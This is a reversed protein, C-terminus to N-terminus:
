NNPEKQPTAKIFLAQATDFGRKVLEEVKGAEERLEQQAEKPDKNLANGLLKLQNLRKDAEVQLKKLAALEEDYRGSLVKMWELPKLTTRLCKKLHSISVRLRDMVIETLNVAGGALKVKQLEEQLTRQMTQVSILLHFLYFNHKVADFTQHVIGHQEHRDVIEKSLFLLGKTAELAHPNDRIMAYALNNPVIAFWAINLSCGKPDLQMLKTAVSAIKAADHKNRELINELNAYTDEDLYPLLATKLLQLANKYADVTKASKNAVRGVDRLYNEPMLKAAEYLWDWNKQLKDAEKTVKDFLYPFDNYRLEWLERLIDKDKKADEKDADILVVKEALYLLKKFFENEQANPIANEKRRDVIHRQAGNIYRLTQSIIIRQHASLKSDVIRQYVADTDLAVFAAEMSKFPKADLITGPLNRLNRAEPLTFDFSKDLVGAAYLQANLAGFLIQKSVEFDDSLTKDGYNLIAFKTLIEGIAFATEKKPTERMEKRELQRICITYATALLQKKREVLGLKENPVNSDRIREVQQILEKPQVSQFSHTLRIALKVILMPLGLLIYSAVKLAIRIAPVHEKRVDVFIKGDFKQRDIVYAKRGGLFFYDEVKDILREKFTKRGVEAYSVPTFFRIKDSMAM